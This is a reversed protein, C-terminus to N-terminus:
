ARIEVGAQREVLRIAELYDAEEGLARRARQFLEGALEIMPGEVGCEHLLDRAIGVDKALLALRFTRPWRGTLVRDPVLSESVFSRGSSGNLVEAAKGAPVGAKVLTALAEGVSLINVALLANNVAKMAHGAGVPGLHEIRNGFAELVPRARAFTAPDAGVMITLTGSEAGNTGGSVPADAFAVGRASLEAALRRSTAPDGSTCDLFLSGPRLGAVLGDPGPLLAEVDASTPLCTVVVEVAAAVERPTAAARAGHRAAFEGARAATRNWVVLDGGGALRAAMPRGIAGLGLFGVATV